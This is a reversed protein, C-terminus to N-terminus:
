FVRKVNNYIAVATEESIPYLELTVDLFSDNSHILGEMHFEMNPDATAFVFTDAGIRRGNTVLLKKNDVPFPNGDITCETVRVICFTMLPDLRLLYDNPTVPICVNATTENQYADEIFYSAAESYEGEPTLPYVQFRYGSDSDNFKQALSIPNSIKRGIRERMEQLSLHKGTVNKQFSVEDKVIEKTAEESLSLKKRIIDLDIKKRNEDELLYCYIARYANERFPMSTEKTWEYDILTWQDKNVLINSFVVDLDAIPADEGYGVREIYEDFLAYFGDLDDSLLCRDMLEALTTGRVYEFYAKPGQSTKLLKCRNVNLKSGEYRKSLGEYYRELNEIHATGENFLAQKKIIIEMPEGSKQSVGEISTEIAYERARDNSFRAYRVGTDPGLVILFSNAFLPYTGDMICEDYAKKESFLEMRDNDFNRYNDMLEGVKPLRRDSYLTHMLKYDPYPYYFHQEEFGANKFIRQLGPRSFTRVGDKKSYGEIGAFYRSLHDEMCGSFYKMGLRNEIAIIMRGNPKLHKKLIALFDEYPTDTPIYSSGYEFVGILCVYDFDDPLRKEVDNFNGVHITLNDCDSHRNANVLSRKKSLDVSVVEGALRTFAGTIAGCGAGVELVKDKKTIPLWRVINERVDSFHYLTPWDAREEIISPYEIEASDRAIKLLEDEVAGDSYFDQGPYVTYDLTVKGVKEITSNTTNEVNEM